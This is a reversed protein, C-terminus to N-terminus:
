KSSYLQRLLRGGEIVLWLVISVGVIWLKLEVRGEEGWGGLRIYPYYSLLLGIFIINMRRLVPFLFPTLVFFNLFYWQQLDVTYTLYGILAWIGAFALWHQHWRNKGTLISFPLTMYKILISVLLWLYGAVRRQSILLWVGVLALSVGILDNHAVVLGEVLVLPHTAFFLGYERKIKGLSFVGLLYFLAFVVKLLVFHIVFTGMGLFSPILTIGLFVPGYPYTRHTWHMFRLWEDQPYDLAKQLYPNDGYFTLIKADFMYNFFDHSLLPYSFILIGATILALYWYNVKKAHKMLWFHLGYLVVILSVYIGWSMPRNHYGIQVVVERFSSWIPHNIFTINPDVLVFSYLGLLGIVVAYVM